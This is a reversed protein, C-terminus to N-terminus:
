WNGLPGGYAGVDNRSGDVDELASDPDGADICPSGAQLAYDGTSRSVFLPDATFNTGVECAPASIDATDNDYVNNYSCENVTGSGIAVIGAGGVGYAIINNKITASGDGYLSLGSGLDSTTTNDVIVNNIVQVDAVESLLVGGAYDRSFNDSIINNEIVGSTSSDFYVGGGLGDDCRNDTIVNQVVTPNARSGYVRVGAGITAANGSIINDSITPSANDISLGGGTLDEVTSGTSEGLGNTLTFGSLTAGASEGSRFMVVPGLGGGDITTSDPGDASLVIADTGGFDLNETYVGPCVIVYQGDSAVDLADQITTHMADSCVDLEDVYADCDNDVGDDLEVAGPYTTNDADDCDDASVFGDGDADDVEGSDDTGTEEGSDDTGTEEGSDDTDESGSDGATVSDGVGTDAVCTEKEQHTGPGCQIDEDARCSLVSICGLSLLFFQRQYSSKLM